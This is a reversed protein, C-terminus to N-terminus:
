SVRHRLQWEEGQKKWLHPSRFRDAIEFFEAEEIGIYRLFDPLYRRPLEGDFRHVLAVGEDRTIHKHRIEQSAEHTARGIGFKVFGCWYHFGDVRDDISNYKSYTGETREDNCEFNAHEFAYYYTEQPVWKIFSGLYHAEIGAIHFEDETLPLYPDLKTRTVNHAALEGVPLGAINFNNDRSGSLYSIPVRTKSDDGKETGYEAANEGYFVLKIGLKAAMKAPFHRQGVAFPQFPHLLNKYALQTLKRHTVGDPTFLYNDFGGVHIWNQFNRWGVETYLHPAWTVTLPNMGYKYKLLHAAYLSDKGGSGPVLCDYSGNRSRHQDLLNILRAERENWDITDKRSVVRCAECIGGEFYVTTASSSPKDQSIISPAVRQNSLVCLQCFEVKEPLGYLAKLKGKSEPLYDMAKGM